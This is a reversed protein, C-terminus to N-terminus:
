SETIVGMFAAEPRLGGHGMSYSAIIEDAQLNARRAHELKLNKLTLTGVTSRHAVVFMCTDKYATPFEHGLGQLVGANVTAGGRNLHPCEILDFGLLRVKGNDGETITLAAGYLKNLIDKHAILANLAVPKIYCFRDSEPVYNTSLATKIALLQKFIATGMVETEGIDAAALATTKIGGKGLGTINEKDAVVLKAIEAIVAGDRALALAEGLQASYPARLDFHAMADDLDPILVDSTLLGDILIVQEGHPINQRLDDLNAGPKLYQAIARGFVPFQASKGSSINREIHRGNTVSARAYATIVEGAFTKLFGALEDTGGQILGPRAITIDAM